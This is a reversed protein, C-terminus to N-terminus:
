NNEEGGVLLLSNCLIIDMQDLMAVTDALIDAYQLLPPSRRFRSLTSVRICGSHLSFDYVACVNLLFGTQM